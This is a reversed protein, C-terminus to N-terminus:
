DRTANVKTEPQAQSTPGSNCIEDGAPSGTWAVGAETHVVHPAQYPTKM